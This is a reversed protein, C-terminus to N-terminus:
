KFVKDTVSIFFITSSKIVLINFVKKKKYLSLKKFLYLHKSHRQEKIKKFAVLLFLTKLLLNQQYHKKAKKSNEIELDM